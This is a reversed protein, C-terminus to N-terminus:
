PTEPSLLQLTPFYAAYHGRDRTLLRYGRAAAHAGIFFDPLPLQRSGGRRRYSLFAVGAMFAADWPLSERKFDARRLTDDLQERTRYRAALEAYIVQNVILAGDDGAAALAQASWEGWEPDPGALDIIINTDVLTDTM